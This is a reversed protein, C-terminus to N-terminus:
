KATNFYFLCNATSTNAPASASLCKVSQAVNNITTGLASTPSWVGSTYDSEATPLTIGTSSYGIYNQGSHYYQFFAGSTKTAVFWNKAFQGDNLTFSPAAIANTSAAGITITKSLDATGIFGGVKGFNRDQDAHSDSYTVNITLGSVKTNANSITVNASAAGILGGLSHYGYITVNEASVNSLEVESTANGVLGGVNVTKINANVGLTNTGTLHVNSLTTKKGTNAVNGIVGGIAGALTYTMSSGSGATKLAATVGNVTLDSITIHAASTAAAVNFLGINDNANATKVNVKSITVTDCVLSAKLTLPTWDADDLDINTRLNTPTEKGDIALFQSATYVDSVATSVPVTKKATDETGSADAKALKAYFNIKAIAVKVKNEDTIGSAETVNSIVANYFTNVTAKGKGTYKKNAGTGTFAPQLSTAAYINTVVGDYLNLTGAGKFTVSTINNTGAKLNANLTGTTITANTITADKNYKTESGITATGANVNLNTVTGKTLTVAASANNVDISAITSGEANVDVAAPSWTKFAADNGTAINKGIVVTGTSEGIVDVYSIAKNDAAAITLTAGQNKIALPREGAGTENGTTIQDNFTINVKHTSAPIVLLTDNVIEKNEVKVQSTLPDNVTIEIDTSYDLNQLYENLAALTNNKKASTFTGAPINASVAADKNVDYFYKVKLEEYYGEVTGDSAAIDTYKGNEDKKFHGFQRLYPENTLKNGDVDGFYVNLDHYKGAPVPIYFLSKAAVGDPLTVVIKKSTTAGTVNSPILNPVNKVDVEAETEIDKNWVSLMLDKVDAEFAGAIKDDNQTDAAEVVITKAENPMFGVNVCLVATLYKFKIDKTGNSNQWAFGWLPIPCTYAETTVDTAAKKATIKKPTWKAPLFIDLKTREEDQMQTVTEVGNETDIAGTTTNVTVSYPFVAYASDKALIHSEGDENACQFVGVTNNKGAATLEFKDTRWNCRAYLKFADGETWVVREYKGDAFDALASRTVGSGESYADEVTAIISGEPANITGDEAFYDNENSCSALAFAALAVPFLKFIKKM